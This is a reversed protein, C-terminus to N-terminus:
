APFPCVIPARALLVGDCDFIVLGSWPVPPRHIRPGSMRRAERRWAIVLAGCIMVLLALPPLLPIERVGTVTYDENARLGLWGRGHASSGTRVRRIDPIGDALWRVTGDSADAAAALPEPTARVDM